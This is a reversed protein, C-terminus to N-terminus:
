HHRDRTSWVKVHTPVVHPGSASGYITLFSRTQQVFHSRKRCLHQADYVSDSMGWTLITWSQMLFEFPHSHPPRRLHWVPSILSMDISTKHSGPDRNFQPGLNLDAVWISLLYISPSQNWYVYCHCYSANSCGQDYFDWVSLQRTSWGEFSLLQTGSSFRRWVQNSPVFSAM